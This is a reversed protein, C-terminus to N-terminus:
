LPEEEGRQAEQGPKAEIRWEDRGQPTRGTKALRHGEFWRGSLHTSFYRGVKRANFPEGFKHGTIQMLISAADPTLKQPLEFVKFANQGFAEGLVWLAEVSERRGPDDSRIADQTTLPDAYGMWALAARVRRDWEPFSGSGGKLLGVGPYGALQHARLVAKVTMVARPFLELARKVPDFPFKQQEPREVTPEIRALLCRRPMDGSLQLNNGTAFIVSTNEITLDKSAGLPRYSMSHEQTLAAALKANNIPMIVNDICIVADGKALLPPLHKGFEEASDYSCISPLTGTMAASIAQVLKTKGSGQTPASICHMLVTPLNHRDDVSMMASLVVSWAATEYWKQDPNDKVFPYACGIPHIDHEILTRCENASLAPNQSAPDVFKVGQTDIWINSLANHGQEMVMTGDSLLIPTLSIKKLRDWSTMEPSTEVSALVMDALSRPSDIPVPGHKSQKCIKGTRGLALQLYPADVEVMVSARPDRLVDREPKPDQGHQIIRVLRRSIPTQFIREEPRDRLLEEADPVMQAFPREGIILLGSTDPEKAPEYRTVSRVISRVEAEPLPPDCHEDNEVMLLAEIAAPSVGKRQMMGALSTLKVNRGGEPIDRKTRAQTTKASVAVPEKLKELLWLPPDAPVFDHALEYRLGSHHRSPPALVYGGASKIDVHAGLKGNNNNRIAVGSPYRFFFHWGRGTKVTRTRPLPGLKEFEARAAESDLDVVFIGSAPGTAVALNADPWQMWWQRIRAPDCSADGVGHQTRPHKGPHSCNKRGCSCLGNDDVSQVPLVRWGREACALASQLCANKRKAAKTSTSAM